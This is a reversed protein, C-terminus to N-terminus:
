VSSVAAVEAELQMCWVQLIGFERSHWEPNLSHVLEPVVASTCRYRALQRFLVANAQVGASAERFPSGKIGNTDYRPHLAIGQFGDATSPPRGRRLLVAASSAKETAKPETKPPKIEYNKGRNERPWYPACSSSLKAPFPDVSLNSICPYLADCSFNSLKM